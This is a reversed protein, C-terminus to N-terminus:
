TYQSKVTAASTFMPNRGFNLIELFYSNVPSARTHRQVSLVHDSVLRQRCFLM